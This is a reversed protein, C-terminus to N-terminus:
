GALVAIGTVSIGALALPAYFGFVSWSTYTDLRSAQDKFVNKDMSYPPVTGAVVGSYLCRFLREEYLYYMDLISFSIIIALGLLALYWREVVASFGFAAGAITLSWGKATASSQSLRAIVAQVFDLHKRRDEADYAQADPSSSM